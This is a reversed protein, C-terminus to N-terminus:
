VGTVNYVGRAREVCNPWPKAPCFKCAEASPKFCPVGRRVAAVWHVVPALLINCQPITLPLGVFRRSRTKEYGPTYILGGPTVSADLTQRAALTYTAQQILYENVTDDADFRAGTKIDWVSLGPYFVGRPCTFDRRVQDLTGTIVVPKGTPDEPAPALTLTVPEECWVVVAEQNARDAAYSRFIAEAKIPDGEPFQSRAAALAKMGAAVRDERAKHYAEAADHVLNGTQAATGGGKDEDWMTLVVSMPCGLFKAVRSPRLPCAASGFNSLDKPPNAQVLNLSLM